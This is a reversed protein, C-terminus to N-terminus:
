SCKQISHPPGPHYSVSEGSTNESFTSRLIKFFINYSVERHHFSKYSTLMSNKKKEREASVPLKDQLIVVYEEFSQPISRRFVSYTPATKHHKTKEGSVPCWIEDIWSRTSRTLSM